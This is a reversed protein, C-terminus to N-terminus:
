SSMATMSRPTHSHLFGKKAGTEPGCTPDADTPCHPATRSPTLRPSREQHNTYSM